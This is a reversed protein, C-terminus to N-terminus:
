RWRERAAQKETLGRDVEQRRPGKRDIVVLPQADM